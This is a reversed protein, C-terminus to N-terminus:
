FIALLKKGIFTKDHQVFISTYGNHPAISSQTILGIDQQSLPFM